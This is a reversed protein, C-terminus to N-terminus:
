QEEQTQKPLRVARPPDEGASTALTCPQATVKLGIM